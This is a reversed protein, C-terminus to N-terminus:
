ILYNILLKTTNIISKIHTREYHHSADVAPGLSAFNIDKGQIVAHTADSSYFNYVDVAYEIGNEEAINVLRNRFEFDYTSRKDKAAISVSFENSEQGEGVIGVDIAIIEKAKEPMYSVGHGMEEYNSIYFHTTYKPIINNEKFYRCIELVIAVALKNDLYRSKVFGSETIETRTDLAIFDGVNIGLKIVDEKNKIVEDIRVLMNTENRIANGGEGGYIHTSAMSPIISGRIKKGKRTIIYCNEGEIAGWSGGGVKAYRLRGNNTIGKVMGGLTDIHATIVVEEDKNKGELTAILAGKNTIKTHLGCKEFDEKAKLVSERTYGGPSPIALYKKMNELIFEIDIEM